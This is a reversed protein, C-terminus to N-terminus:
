DRAGRGGGGGGAEAVEVLPPVLHPGCVHRDESHLVGDESGVGGVVSM